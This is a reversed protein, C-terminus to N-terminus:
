GEEQTGDAFVLSDIWEAHFDHLGRDRIVALQERNGNTRLNASGEFVLGDATDLDFAVVKAHTRAATIRARDPYEQLGEAFKEFEEKNHGKFFDSVLLTLRLAPLSELLGLLEAANRKSFCLTAIRLHRCDPRQKVTASIVQCLDFTGLMLCHIAEGIAPLDPLLEAATKAARHYRAEAKTRTQTTPAAQHQAARGFAPRPIAGFNTATANFVILFRRRHSIAVESRDEEEVRQRRAKHPRERHKSAREGRFRFFHQREQRSQGTPHLEHAKGHWGRTEHPFLM